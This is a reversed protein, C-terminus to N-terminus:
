FARAKCQKLAENFGECLSIDNQTQTCNLFQELEYGCPRQQQYNQQQYPQQQYAQQPQPPQEQNTVDSKSESGGGFLASTLGHGVVSGIAVGGATAAMQGMLGSGQRPAGMQSPPAPAPSRMQPSPSPARREPGPRPSASRFASRRRPM